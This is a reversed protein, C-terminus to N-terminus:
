VEHTVVEVEIVDDDDETPEDVEIDPLNDDDDDSLDLVELIDSIGLGKRKSMDPFLRGSNIM